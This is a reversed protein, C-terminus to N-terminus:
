VEKGPAMKQMCRKQFNSVAAVLAVVLSITGGVIMAGQASSGIFAQNLSNIITPSLFGGICNATSLVGMGMPILIPQVLVMILLPGQAFFTSLGAGALFSAIFLLVANNAFAILLLACGELM